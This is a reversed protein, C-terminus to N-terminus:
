ALSFWYRGESGNCEWPVRWLNLKGEMKLAAERMINGPM